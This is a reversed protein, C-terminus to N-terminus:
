PRSGCKSQFAMRAAVSDGCYRPHVTLAVKQFAATYSLGMSIAFENLGEEADEWGTVMEVM